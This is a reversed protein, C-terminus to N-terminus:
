EDEDEMGDDSEGMDGDNLDGYDDGTYDDGGSDDNGNSDGDSDGGAGAFDTEGTDNAFPIDEDDEPEYEDEDDAIGASQTKPKVIKIYYGAGGIALLAIVIIIIMGTNGGGSEEPAPETVSGVPESAGPEDGAPEPAPNSAAPLASESIPEGAKEALSILDHETVANLFYVNDSNRAHDIVLFFVSGAPTTFTYFEKGDYETAQDMVTAQGDPMFPKPSQPTAPGGPEPEKLGFMNFLELMTMFDDMGGADFDVTDPIDPTNGYEEMKFIDESEETEPAGDSEQTVSIDESEDTDTIVASEEPATDIDGDITEITILLETEEPGVEIDSDNAEIAAPLETEEPLEAAHATMPAIFASIVLSLLAFIITIKNRL